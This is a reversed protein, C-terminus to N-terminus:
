QQEFGLRLSPCAEHVGMMPHMCRMPGQFRWMSGSHQRLVGEARLQVPGSVCLGGVDLAGAGPLFIPTSACPEKMM